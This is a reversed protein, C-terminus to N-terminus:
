DWDDSATMITWPSDVSWQFDTIKNIHGKHDFLLATEIDEEESEKAETATPSQKREEAM